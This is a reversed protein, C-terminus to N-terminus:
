PAVRGPLSFVCAPSRLCWSWFSPEACVCAPLVRVATWLAFFFLPTRLTSPPLDAFIAASFLAKGQADLDRMIEDYLEHERTIVMSPHNCLKRLYQLAQFIHKPPGSKPASDASKLGSVIGRNMQSQMFWNYLKMQVDTLQCKYDQIIKPPLDSLVDEKMRRLLFPL